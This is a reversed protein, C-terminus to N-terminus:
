EYRKGSVDYDGVRKSLRASFSLEHDGYNGSIALSYQIGAKTAAPTLTLQIDERRQAFGSNDICALNM